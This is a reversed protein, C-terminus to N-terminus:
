TPIDPPPCGLATLFLSLWKRRPLPLARGLGATQAALLSLLEAVEEGTLTHQSFRAREALEKARPPTKGGHRELSAFRRYLALAAANRGKRALLRHWWVQVLRTLLRPLWEPATFALVLPLLLLLWALPPGSTNEEPAPEEGPQPTAEPAQSAQPPRSPQVRPAPTHEPDDAQRAAPTVEVPYWGYGDLFVEVWAHANWDRVTDTGGGEPIDATYGTVYRAPIGQLRLLLAAASAFHVCYGRRSEELFYLVFDEGEPTVPTNLDYEASRELLQAVLAASNLEQAYPGTYGGAMPEGSEELEAVAQSYWQRLAAALEGQQGDDGAFLSLYQEGAQSLAYDELYERYGSAGLPSAADFPAPEGELPLYRVTYGSLTSPYFLTSATTFPSIPSDLLHTSQYPVYAISGSSQYTVTLTHTGVALLADNWSYFTSSLSSPLTIAALNWSFGTYDQYVSGRLYVTGPRTGTVEMVAQGTYRRPGAASLDESDPPALAGMTGAGSPGAPDGAGPGNGEFWDLSLLEDRLQAAWGPQVYGERPFLLTLCVLIGLCLPLSLLTVRAGGAPNGRAALGSLLLAAWCACVAMLAPWDMPIEALFAPLLWPLTLVFTLWFSRVRVAAWGLPLAYLAGAAALLAQMAAQVQADTLRYLQNPPLLASLAQASHFYGPFGTADTFLISLREWLFLAGCALTRWNLWIVAGAALTLLLAALWRLRPLSWVLLSALGAGLCLALSPMLPVPSMAGPPQYSVLILNEYYFPSLYTNLCFLALACLLALLLVGDALYRVAAPRASSRRTM